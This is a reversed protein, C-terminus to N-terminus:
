KQLILRTGYGTSSLNSVKLGGSSSLNSQLLFSLSYPLLTLNASARTDAAPGSLKRQENSSLGAIM